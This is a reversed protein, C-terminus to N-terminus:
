DNEFHGGSVNSLLLTLLNKTQQDSTLVGLSIQPTELDVVQNRALRFNLNNNKPSLKDRPNLTNQGMARSVVEELRFIYQTLLYVLGIYSKEM